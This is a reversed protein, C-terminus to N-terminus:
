EPNLCEVEVVVSIGNRNMQYCRQEKAGEPALHLRDMGGVPDELVCSFWGFIISYGLLTSCDATKGLM